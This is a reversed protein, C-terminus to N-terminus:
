GHLKPAFALSLLRQNIDGAPISDRTEPVPTNGTCHYIALAVAERLAKPRPRCGTGFGEVDHRSAVVLALHEALRDMDRSDFYLVTM